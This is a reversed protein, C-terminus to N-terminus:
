LSVVSGDSDSGDDDDSSWNDGEEEKPPPKYAPIKAFKRAPLKSSQETVDSPFNTSVATSPSRNNSCEWPHGYRTPDFGSSSTSEAIVSGAISSTALSSSRWSKTKQVTWGDGGLPVAGSPMFRSGNSINSLLTHSSNDFDLETGDDSAASYSRTSSGTLSLNGISIGGTSNHDDIESAAASSAYYDTDSRAGKKKEEKVKAYKAEDVPELELQKQMCDMCKANDPKSRQAKAFEDLGKTKHCMWCELEVVQGGTCLRCNITVNANVGGKYYQYRAEALQKNSFNVQSKWKICRGCKIKNPLKVGKLKDASLGNFGGTVTNYGYRKSPM